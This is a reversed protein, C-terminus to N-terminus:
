ICCYALMVAYEDL